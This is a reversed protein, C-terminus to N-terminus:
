PDRVSLKRATRALLAELDDRRYLRYGNLPHRLPKLKDARDWNRLTDPAVGLVARAPKITVYRSSSELITGNVETFRAFAQSAPRWAIAGPSASDIVRYTAGAADFCHSAATHKSV